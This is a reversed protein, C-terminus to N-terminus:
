GFSEASMLVASTLFGVTVEETIGATVVLAYIWTRLSWPLTQLEPLLRRGDPTRRDM